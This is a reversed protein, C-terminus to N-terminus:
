DGSHSLLVRMVPGGAMNPPRWGRHQREARRAEVSGTIAGPPSAEPSMADSVLFVTTTAVLPLAAPGGGATSGRGSTPPTQSAVV